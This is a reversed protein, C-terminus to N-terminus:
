SHSNHLHQTHTCRSRKMALFVLVYVKPTSRRKLDQFLAKLSSGEGGLSGKCVFGMM